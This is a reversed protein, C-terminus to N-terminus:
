TSASGPTTVVLGPTAWTGDYQVLATKISPPVILVLHRRDSHAFFRTIIQATAAPTQQWDLHARLRDISDFQAQTPNATLNVFWDAYLGFSTFSFYIPQPDILWFHRPPGGRGQEQRALSAAQLVMAMAPSTPSTNVLATHASLGPSEGNAIAGAYPGVYGDLQLTAASALVALSLVVPRSPRRTLRGEGWRVVVGASLAVLSIGFLAAGLKQGYYTVTRDSRIELWAVALLLISGVVAPTALLLRTTKDGLDDGALVALLVLVVPTAVVLTWPTPFQGATINLTTSVGRHLFLIAPTLALVSSSLIALRSLVLRSPTISRYLHRAAFLAAPAVLLLLLYWNYTVVLVLGFVTFFTASPGLTPRLILTVAIGAAAVALDFNPYGNLAEFPGFAFLAIAGAMAPLALLSRPSPRVVAMCLAVVVFGMMVVLMASYANLLWPFNTPPPHPSWLRVLQAFAQHMGQPYDWGERLTGGAAHPQVSVFSGLVVNSRFMAFHSNNDWGAQLAQLRGTTQLRSLPLAWWLSVMAGLVLAAAELASPRPPVRAQCGTRAQLGCVTAIALALALGPMDLHRELGPIWGLTPLWGFLLAFTILIRGSLRSRSPFFVLCGVAALLASPGTLIGGLRLALALLFAAAGVLAPTARITPIRRRDRRNSHPQEVESGRPAGRPPSPRDDGQARDPLRVPTTVVQDTM